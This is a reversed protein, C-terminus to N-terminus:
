TADTRDEMPLTDASSSRNKQLALGVEGEQVVEREQVVEWGEQVVQVLRDPQGM